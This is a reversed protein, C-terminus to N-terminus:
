VTSPYGKLQTIYSLPFNEVLLENDVKRNEFDRCFINQQILIVLHLVSVLPSYLNNQVYRFILYDM